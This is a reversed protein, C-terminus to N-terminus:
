QSADPDSPVSAPIRRVLGTLEIESSWVPNAQVYKLTDYAVATSGDELTVAKANTIETKVTFANNRNSFVAHDISEVGLATLISQNSAFHNKASCGSFFCAGVAILGVALIQTYKTKM